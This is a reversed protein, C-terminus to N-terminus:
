VAGDDAFLRARRRQDNGLHQLRQRAQRARRAIGRDTKEGLRAGPLRPASLRPPHHILGMVYANKPPALRIQTLPDGFTVYTEQYYKSSGAGGFHRWMENLGYAAVKGWERIGHAFLGDYVRRQVIDDENWFTSDMSGWFIISGQPHRQWIDGFSLTRFDGTECANSLVVPLANPDKLKEVEKQTFHPGIWYDSSGHGSYNIFGRGAQLRELVQETTAKYTHAYLKDGGLQSALPFDGGIGLAKTYLDVAYNMSGEAIKWHSYDDTGLFSYRSLWKTDTFEGTEYKIQKDVVTKLQAEDDISFRGVEIDAGIIDEEYDKTDLSRYYHDTLGSIHTSRFSPVLKETGILMAAVLPHKKDNLLDQLKARIDQPTKVDTGVLIVKSQYGLSRKFAVYRLLSPSKAMKESVVLALIQREHPIAVVPLGKMEQTVDFDYVVKYEGKAGNYHIPFLTIQRQKQGRISGADAILFNESPLSADTYYGRGSKVVTQAGAIKKIPAISPLWPLDTHRPQERTSPKAVIKIDGDGLVFFRIVPLEPEGEEFRIAEYGEVGSLTVTHFAQGHIEFKAPVVKDIHFHYITSEPAKDVTVTGRAAGSFLFVSALVSVAARSVNRFSFAM